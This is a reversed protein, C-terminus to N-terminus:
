HSKKQDLNLFLSRPLEWKVSSWIQRLNEAKGLAKAVPNNGKPIDSSLHSGTIKGIHFEGFSMQQSTLRHVTGTGLHINPNCSSFANM